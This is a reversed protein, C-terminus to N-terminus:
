SIGRRKLIDEVESLDSDLAPSRELRRAGASGDADGATSKGGRAGAQKARDGRGGRRAPEDQKGGGRRRLAGSVMYLVVAVGAVVVGAWAFPNFVFATVWRVAATGMQWLMATVGTLVAALPLLSWALGRLGAAVGRRRWAIWSLLIGVVTVGAGLPVWMIQDPDM